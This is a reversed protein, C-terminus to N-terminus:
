YGLKRMLQELLIENDQGSPKALIAEKIIGRLQDETFLRQELPTKVTKFNNNKLYVLFEKIILRTTSGQSEGNVYGSIANSRILDLDRAEVKELEFDHHM